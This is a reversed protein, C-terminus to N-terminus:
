LRRIESASLEAICALGPCSRQGQCNPHEVPLHLIMAVVDKAVAIHINVEDIHIRRVKGNDLFPVCAGM